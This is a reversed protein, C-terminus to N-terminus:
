PLGDVAEALSESGTDRSSHPATVDARGDEDLQGVRRHVAGLDDVRDLRARM